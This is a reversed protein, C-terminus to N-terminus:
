NMSPTFCDTFEVMEGIHRAYGDVQRSQISVREPRAAVLTFLCDARRFLPQFELKPKSTSECDFAWIVRSYLTDYPGRDVVNLSRSVLPRVLQCM